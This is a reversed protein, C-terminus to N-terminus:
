AALKFEGWGPHWAVMRCHCNITESPDGDPDNPYMLAGGPFIFPEKMAVTAGSMGVHAPRSRKGGGTHLWLKVLDPVYEAAQQMGLYNAMSFNRGVETTVIAQARAAAAHGGGLLDRVFQTAMQPTKLGSTAYLIERGLAQRLDDSLDTLFHLGNQSYAEFGRRWVGTWSVGVDIAQPLSLGLEFASKQWGQLEGWYRAKFDDTAQRLSTLLQGARYSEWDSRIFETEVRDRLEALLALARQAADRDLRDAQDLTNRYLIRAEKGTM